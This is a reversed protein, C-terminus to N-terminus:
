HFYYNASSSKTTTTTAAAAAAAAALQVRIDPLLIAKAEREHLRYLLRLAEWPPARKASATNADADDDNALGFAAPECCRLLADGFGGVLTAAGESLACKVRNRLVRRVRQGDRCCYARGWPDRRRRGPLITEHCETCEDGPPAQANLLTTMTM